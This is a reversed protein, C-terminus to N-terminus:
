RCLLPLRRKWREGRTLVAPAGRGLRRLASLRALRSRRQRREGEEALSAQGAIAAPTPRVLDARPAPAAIEPESRPRPKMPPKNSRTRARPGPHSSPQTVEPPAGHSEKEATVLSPLIRRAGADSESQDPRAPQSTEGTGPAATVASRADAERPWMSSISNDGQDSSATTRRARKVEVTFVPTGRPRAM